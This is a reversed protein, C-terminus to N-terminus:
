SWGIGLNGTWSTFLILLISCFYFSIERLYKNLMWNCYILFYLWFRIIGLSDCIAHSFNCIILIVGLVRFFDLSRHGLFISLSFSFIIFIYLYFWCYLYGLWHLECHATVVAIKAVATNAVAAGEIAMNGTIFELLRNM